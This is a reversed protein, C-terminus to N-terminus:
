YTRDTKSDRRHTAKLRWHTCGCRGASTHHQLSNCFTNCHTASHTASQTATHMATHLATRTATHTALGRVQTQRGHYSTATLQLSHQLNCQLTRQLTCQLIHRWEACRCRGAMTHQQLANCHANCHANRHANCHANVHSDDILAGAYAQWSMM